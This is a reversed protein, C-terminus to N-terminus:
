VEADVYNKTAADQPDTPDVVNLIRNTGLDVDAAAAGFGSLPINGKDLKDNTVNANAIKITTVADTALDETLITENLIEDTTVAGTDIEFATIGGESVDLTYPNIEDGDGELRLTTDFPGVVENGVISDLQTNLLDARNVFNWASGNYMYLDGASSADALNSLGVADEALKRRTVTGDQLKSDANISTDVINAGTIRYVEFNYNTSGDPNTSQLIAITNERAQPNVQRLSDARTSVTFSDDLAECINIWASGNFYHLCEKDTNYVVAGRLPNITSMQADNVRTIVLARTTSELELLSAPNLNQPNDGIKVQASLSNILLLGIVLYVISTKM